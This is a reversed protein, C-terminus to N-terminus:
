LCMLFFFFFRFFIIKVLEQSVYYVSSNTLMAVFQISPDQATPSLMYEQISDVTSKWTNLLSIDKKEQLLYNKILYEYFSDGGGGM